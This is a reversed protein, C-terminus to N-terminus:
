RCHHRIRSLVFRVEDEDLEGFIGVRQDQAYLKVHTECKLKGDVPLWYFNGLVPSSERLATRSADLDPDDVFADRKRSGSTFTARSGRKTEESLQRRRAESSREVHRIGRSVRLLDFESIRVLAELESKLRDRVLDYRSGSPLQQIMLAAHGSLLDWDFSTIGREIRQKYAKYLIGELFFDEDPSLREEWDRREIWLFRVREESWAISSLTPKKPLLLPRRRNFLGICRNERLITKVTAEKRWPTAVANSARYLFVHQNGWGEISDLLTILELVRFTGDKFAGQLRERLQSRTGSRALGYKALFEQVHRKRHAFLYDVLLELDEEGSPEEYNAALALESLDSM